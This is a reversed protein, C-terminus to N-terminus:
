TLPLQCALARVEQRAALHSMSLPYHLGNERLDLMTLGNLFLERFIIRETLNPLLTFKLKSALQPMLADIAQRNKNKFPSMRNRVVYWRLPTKQMLNRKQSVSFLRETYHSPGRLTMNQPDISALVDLDVLSDNIPTVLLDAQFIAESSLATDAGPTDLIIVDFDNRLRDLQARLFLVENSINSMRVHEPMPLDIQRRTAFAKRNELYKSLTGQRGDLDMTVVKKGQRLWLVALHMALTSKGTGGKENGIVVIKARM